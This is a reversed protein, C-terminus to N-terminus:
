VEKIENRIERMGDRLEEKLEGLWMKMGDEEGGKREKKGMEEKDKEVREREKMPSRTVKKNRKFVEEINVEEMEGEM